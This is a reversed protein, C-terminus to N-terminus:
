EGPLARPARRTLRSVLQHTLGPFHQGLFAGIRGHGTFVVERRRQHVARVMVVAAQEASWMLAKPRGDARDPHFVGDNDM